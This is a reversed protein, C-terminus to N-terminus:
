ESNLAEQLHGVLVELKDPDIMMQLHDETNMLCTSVEPEIVTNWGFDNEYRLEPYIGRILVARGSYPRPVYDDNLHGNLELLRRQRLYSPVPRQLRELLDFALHEAFARATIYRREVEWMARRGIRYGIYGLKGVLSRGAMREQHVTLRDQLKNSPIIGPRIVDLLILLDVDEGKERLQQAMEFAVVGGFCFGGVTYPGHPQVSQVEQVYLRAIEIVSAPLDQGNEIGPEQLGYLPRDPDLASALKAYGTIGGGGHHVLFIPAKRGSPKIPVLCSWPQSAEGKALTVAMQAISPARFLVAVSIDQDFAHRMQSLLQVAQFSTAGLDFFHDDVGFDQRGLVNAWLNFLRAELGNRPAQHVHDAEIRATENDAVAEPKASQSVPRLRDLYKGPSVEPQSIIADLVHRLQELLRTIEAATYREESYVMLLLLGEPGDEVALTLPFNTRLAAREVRMDFFSPLKVPSQYLFLTEFLSNAERMESWSQIQYPSVYGYEQVAQQRNQLEQLWDLLSQDQPFRVRLPVNNIFPGIIREVGRLSTPRGSITVGLLLDGPPNALGHLLAWAGMVVTSLTLRHSAAFRRLAASTHSDIVSQQEGYSLAPKSIETGGLRTLQTIGALEGRWLDEAAQTGEQQLWRIYDRFPRGPEFGATTGSRNAQYLAATEGVLIGICWRDLILHHSSWVLSFNQEGRRCFAFRMLPAGNLNFGRQRDEQLLATLRTEQEEAPLGSWDHYQWDLAATERVVQVPAKLGEWLFLTRLMPHRQVIEKWCSEYLAADLDGDLQYVVQNFLLDKDPRSVAHVLMLEQMPSLPYIDSVNKM